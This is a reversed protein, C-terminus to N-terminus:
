RYKITVYETIILKPNGFKAIFFETIVFETIVFETIVFETIVFETIVFETIVFEIIVCMQCSVPQENYGTDKDKEAPVIIRSRSLHQTSKATRVTLVASKWLSVNSCYFGSLTMVKPWILHSLM